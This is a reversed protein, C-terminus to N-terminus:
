KLFRVTMGGLYNRGPQPFYGNFADATEAYHRDFLNNCAVFLEAYGITKSLRFNAVTYGPIEVGTEGMGTWQRHLYLVDFTTQTKWPLSVDVRYDIKHKPSFALTSYDYNTSADKGEAHLYTYSIKQRIMKYAYEAEAEAGESYAKDLNVAVFNHNADTTIRDRTDTYFLTMSTELGPAPKVAAGLDYSWTIEPKLNAPLPAFPNYLDAFTPAQFSRAASASVKWLDSPKAVLQLRPSWSEGYANDEDYRVGPTLNLWENHIFDAEYFAGWADDRHEGYVNSDLRRQYYEYGLAGNGPIEVKTYANRGETRILTESGFQFADLDKVNNALRTTLDLPGLKNTYQIQNRRDTETSHDTLSNAQRELDGNWDSIPAPTGSPLGVTGKSGEINYSLKGLAKADYAFFGSLDTNRDSSNQQFGDSLDRSGTVQAQVPGQDTGVQVRNHYTGYSGAESAAQVDVATIPRKTIIHIVGGEANPGYVASAGGRLIEIRDVNDLPIRSLDVNGTLDPIQPVDDVVILVQKSSYGRISPSALSGESGNKKVILGPESEIVDAVTRAAIKEFDQSKIVEINTPADSIPTEGRTLSLFVESAHSPATAFLAALAVVTYSKM